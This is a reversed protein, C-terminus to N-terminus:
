NNTVLFWFGVKSAVEWSGLKGVEWSGFLGYALLIFAFDLFSISAHQIAALRAAEAAGVQFLALGASLWDWALAQKPMVAGTTLSLCLVASAATRIISSKKM